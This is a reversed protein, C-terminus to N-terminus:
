VIAIIFNYLGTIMIQETPKSTRLFLCNFFIIRYINNQEFIHKKMGNKEYEKYQNATASRFTDMRKIGGKVLVTTAATVPEMVKNQIIKPTM